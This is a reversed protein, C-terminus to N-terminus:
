NRSFNSFETRPDVGYSFNRRKLRREATVVDVTVKCVGDLPWNEDTQDTGLM